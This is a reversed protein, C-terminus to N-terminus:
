CHYFLLFHIQLIKSEPARRKHVSISESFQRRCANNRFSKWLMELLVDMKGRGAKYVGIQSDLWISQEKWATASGLGVGLATGPALPGGPFM